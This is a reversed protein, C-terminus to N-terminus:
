YTPIKRADGEEMSRKLSALTARGDINIVTVHQQIPKLLRLPFKKTDVYWSFYGCKLAVKDLQKKVNYYAKGSTIEITVHKIM